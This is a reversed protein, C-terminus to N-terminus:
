IKGFSKIVQSYLMFPIFIKLIDDSIFEQEIESIRSSLIGNNVTHSKPFQKFHEELHKTTSINEKLWHTIQDLSEINEIKKNEFLDCFINLQNSYEKYSDDLQKKNKKIINIIESNISKNESM